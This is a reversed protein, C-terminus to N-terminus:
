KKKKKAILFKAAAKITEPPMAGLRAILSEMEEATIPDLKMRTKEADRLFAPDKMTEDFGKRLAALRDKPLGPGATYPRGMEQPIMMFTLIDRDSKKQVMDLVMPVGKLEPHPKLGIQALINIQKKLIWDPVSALLTQYSMGCIGMTEGRTVSLLADASKYGSIVKFKTSFMQNFLKPYIVANGSVGTAAVVVERSKAKDFTNVPNTHWTTCINQQKGMSGIWGLKKTDFRVGKRGILPQVPLTNFVSAFVSGDRPAVNYLYNTATISAGGGMNKAIVHPEGPIHRGMHRALVRSYVDYAGGPGSGILMTISKDKYFDTEAVVPTAGIAAAGLIAASLIAKSFVRQVM